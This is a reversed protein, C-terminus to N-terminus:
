LVNVLFQTIFDTRRKIIDNYGLTGEQSMPGMSTIEYTLFVSALTGALTEVTLGNSAANEKRLADRFFKMLYLFTGYSTKTMNNRLLDLSALSDPVCLSCVDAVQKPLLPSPFSTLYMLLVLSADVPSVHSPISSDTDMAVRTAEITEQSPYRPSIILHPMRLGGQTVIFRILNQLELPVIPVVEPHHSAGGKGEEPSPAASGPSLACRVGDGQVLLDLKVGGEGGEEDDGGDEGDDVDVNGGDKTTPAYLAKVKDVREQTHPRRESLRDPSVGFCSFDYSGTISIFKDGSGAVSMVLILDMTEGEMSGAAGGIGGEVLVTILIESTGGTVVKGQVPHVELWDPKDGTLSLHWLADVQGTNVLAVRKTVKRDYGVVGFDFFQDPVELSPRFEMERLDALRRAKHIAADLEQSLYEHVSIMFGGFVAKHDSIRMEAVDSYGFLRVGKTAKWLIRDCWAPARRKQVKAAGAGQPDEGEQPSPEESGIYTDTGVIYKFTPPFTIEGEEWGSLIEGRRMGQGLQDDELLAMYSGSKIMARVRDEESNLRFNLDGFLFCFDSDLINYVEMESHSAVASKQFIHGLDWYRRQRDQDSEGSSLHVCIFSLYTDWVRLRVSVGGKNGLVRMVGCSVCVVEKYEVHPVLSRKVWITLYVGVLSKAVLRIYKREKSKSSVFDDATEGNVFLRLSEERTAGNLVHDMKCEWELVATNVSFNDALVNSATLPMVEQFGIAYIDVEVSADEKKAKAKESLLWKRFGRSGDEDESTPPPKGNVNYTGCVCMLKREKTYRNRDEEGLSLFQERVLPGVGIQALLQEMRVDVKAMASADSSKNDGCDVWDDESGSTGGPSEKEPDRQEAGASSSGPKSADSQRSAISSSSSSSSNAQTQVFTKTKKYLKKAKKFM